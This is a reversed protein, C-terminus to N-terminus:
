FKGRMMVQIKKIFPHRTAQTNNYCYGQTSDQLVFAYNEAFDMLIICTDKDLNEKCEQLFAKQNESVFHHPILNYIDEILNDLFEDHSEKFQTLVTRNTQSTDEKGTDVKITEWNKFRINATGNRATHSLLYQRIANRGPCTTCTQQQMCKKNDISCVAEHIVDRYNISRDWTALKLKVNQHKECVCVTHTGPSGAPVCEKPRLSAFLSFSPKKECKTEKLWNNYLDRIDYLLILKSVPISKANPVKQM